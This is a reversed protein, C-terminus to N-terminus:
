GPSMRRSRCTGSPIDRACDAPACAAEPFIRRRECPHAPNQCVAGASAGKVARASRAKSLPPNATPQTNSLSKRALCTTTDSGCSSKSHRPELYTWLSVPFVNEATLFTNSSPMNTKKEPCARDPPRAQLIKQSSVILVQQSRIEYAVADGARPQKLLVDMPQLFFVAAFDAAVSEAALHAGGAGVQVVVIVEKLGDLDDAAGGNQIGVIKCKEIGLSVPLAAVSAGIRLFFPYAVEGKRIIPACLPEMRLQGAAVANGDQGEICLLAKGILPLNLFGHLEDGALQLPDLLDVEIEILRCFTRRVPIEM